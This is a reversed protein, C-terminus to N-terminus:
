IADEITSPLAYSRPEIAKSKKRSHPISNVAKSSQIRQVPMPEPAMSAIDATELLFFGASGARSGSPSVFVIVPVSSQEITQVMARTSELLGGPPRRYSFLRPM